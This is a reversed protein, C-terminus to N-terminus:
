LQIKKKRRLVEEKSNYRFTNHIKENQEEM